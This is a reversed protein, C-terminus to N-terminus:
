QIWLPLVTSTRPEKNIEREAEDFYEKMLALPYRAQDPSKLDAHLRNLLQALNMM